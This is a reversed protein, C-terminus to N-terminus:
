MMRTRQIFLKTILLLYKLGVKKSKTIKLQVNLQNKVEAYNMHTPNTENTPIDRTSLEPFLEYNNSFSVNNDNCNKPLPQRGKPLPQRRKTITAERKTITGKQTRQKKNQNRTNSRRESTEKLVDFRNNKKLMNSNNKTSNNKM